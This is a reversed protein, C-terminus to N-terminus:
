HDPSWRSRCEKGVRREESRAVKAFAEATGPPPTDVPSYPMRVSSLAEEADVERQSKHWTWLGVAVGVVLIVGVGIAVPKKNTEFWGLFNYFGASPPADSSM